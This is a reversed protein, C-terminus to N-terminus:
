YDETYLEGDALDEVVSHFELEFWRKFLTLTRDQPWRGEDICWDFLQEAFITSYLKKIIFDKEQDKGFASILYATCDDNIEKITIHDSDPLLSIWERFPEKAKVVLVGRDVMKPLRNEKPIKVAVFSSNDSGHIYIRGTLTEGSCTFNGYGSAPDCEDNGEWTFLYRDKSKQLEMQGDVCIFHLKGKKGTIHIYGSEVLDIADKDWAEMEIIEYLGDIDSKPM